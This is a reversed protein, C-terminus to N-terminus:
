SLLEDRDKRFIMPLIMFLVSSQSNIILDKYKEDHYEVFNKNGAIITKIIEEPNMFIEIKKM